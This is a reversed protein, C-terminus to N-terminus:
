LLVASLDIDFELIEDHPQMLPSDISSPSSSSKTISTRCQSCNGDEQNYDNQFHRRKRLPTGYDKPLSLNDEFM